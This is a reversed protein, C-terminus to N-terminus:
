RTPATSESRNEAIEARKSASFGSESSFRDFRSAEDVIVWGYHTDMWVGDAAFGYCLPGEPDNTAASDQPTEADSM